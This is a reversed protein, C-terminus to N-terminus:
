VSGWVGMCMGRTGVQLVGKMVGVEYAVCWVVQMGQRVGCRWSGWVAM